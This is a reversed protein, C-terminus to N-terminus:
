YARTTSSIREYTMVVVVITQITKRNLYAGGALKSFMEETLTDDPTM